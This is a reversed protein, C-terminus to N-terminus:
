VHVTLYLRVGRVCASLCMCVWCMCAECVSDFVHVHRVCVSEFVCVKCM